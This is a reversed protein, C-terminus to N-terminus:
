LAKHKDYANSVRSNTIDYETRLSGFCGQSSDLASRFPAGALECYFLSLLLVSYKRIGALWWKRLQVAKLKRVLTAHVGGVVRRGATRNNVRSKVAVTQCRSIVARTLPM